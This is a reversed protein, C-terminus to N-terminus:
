PAKNTKDIENKTKEPFFNAHDEESYDIWLHWGHFDGELVKEVLLVDGCFYRSIFDYFPSVEYDTRSMEKQFEADDVVLVFQHRIFGQPVPPAPTPPLIRVPM